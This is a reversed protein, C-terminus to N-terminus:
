GRGFAKEVSGGGEVRVLKRFWRNFEGDANAFDIVVRAAEYPSGSSGGSASSSIPIPRASRWQQGAPVVEAGYWSAAESLIAMSRAHKGRKPIFAEGGTGPEAFAYRAPSMASFVQANRLLGERAHYVGGWRNVLESAGLGHEQYIFQQVQRTTITITTGHLSDIVNQLDNAGQISGETGELIGDVIEQGAADGRQGWLEVVEQLEADTMSAMLAVMEAGEPGMRALEDLMAAPVEGALYTMNDAWEQQAAVQDRLGQIFSEATVKQGEDLEALAENYVSLMDIFATAGETWAAIMDAVAQEASEGTLDFHDALIQLQDAYPNVAETAEETKATTTELAAQYEPFIAQLQEMSLGQKEAEAAIMSFADAAAEPNEGHLTALASDMAQIRETSKAVSGDFEKLFPLVAEKFKGVGGAISGQESESAWLLSDGLMSMDDGMIRAVEGAAKGETAWREIGVAFADIQPNLNNQMMASLAASALQLGAFTTGVVIGARTVKGLVTAARAGAPGMATLQANMEALKDRARVAMGSLLLGGAVLMGIVAVTSTVPAPISNFTDILDTGAQVLVRLASSVGGSSEIALGELASTLMDVDGKLSDMRKAATDAAVGQESVKGIYNNISASGEALIINAGAIAEAGFITNLAATRQEVSLGSLGHELQQVIEVASLTEGNADFISIGLRDMEEKAAGTPAMLRLLVTRLATGAEAGVLANDGFASLIGVTEEVTFGAQAAVTGVNKLSEGLGTVDTSSANASGALTDAVSTMQSAELNFQNLTNAAITAAEALGVGGAAALNLAGALAGGTIQAASLGAKALEETANAAETASFATSAGMDIASQRLDQFEAATAGSVANVQAMAHDFEVAQAVGIALAGGLAAGFAIAGNAVADLDGQGKAATAALEERFSRTTRAMDTMAATYQRINAKVNVSVSRISM